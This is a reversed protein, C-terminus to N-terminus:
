LYKKQPKNIAKDMVIQAHILLKKVVVLVNLVHKNSLLFVKTQEYEGMEEVIRVIILVPGQNLVM